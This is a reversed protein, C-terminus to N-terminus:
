IHISYSGCTLIWFAISCNSIFLLFFSVNLSITKQFSIFLSMHFKIFSSRLYNFDCVIKWSIGNIEMACKWVYFHEKVRRYKWINELLNNWSIELGSCELLTESECLCISVRAWFFFLNFLCVCSQWLFDIHDCLLELYLHVANSLFSIAVTKNRHFHFCYTAQTQGKTWSPFFRFVLEKNIADHHGCYSSSMPKLEVCMWLRM